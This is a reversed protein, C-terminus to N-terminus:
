STGGGADQAAVAAWISNRCCMVLSESKSSSLKMASPAFASWSCVLAAVTKFLWPSPRPRDRIRGSIVGIGSSGGRPPTSEVPSSQTCRRDAWPRDSMTFNVGSPSAPWPPLM